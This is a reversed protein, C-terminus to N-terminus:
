MHGAGDTWEIGVSPETDAGTDAYSEGTAAVHARLIPSDLYVLQPVLGRDLTPVLAEQLGQVCVCLCVQLEGSKAVYM